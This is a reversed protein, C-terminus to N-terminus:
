YLISDYQSFLLYFLNKVVFPLIFTNNSSTLAHGIRLQSPLIRGFDLIIVAYLQANGNCQEPQLVTRKRHLNHLLRGLWPLHNPSFHRIAFVYRHRCLTMWWKSLKCSDATGLFFESDVSTWDLTLVIMRALPTVDFTPDFSNIIRSFIAYYSVLVFSTFSTLKNLTTFPLFLSFSLGM